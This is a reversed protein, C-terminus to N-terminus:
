HDVGKTKKDSTWPTSSDNAFFVKQRLLRSQAVAQGSGLELKQDTGGTLHYKAYKVRTSQAM